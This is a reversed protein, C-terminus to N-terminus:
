KNKNLMGLSVLLIVVVMIQIEIGGFPLSAFTFSIGALSLLLPVLGTVCLPCVGAAFGGAAGIGAATYGETCKKREKYRVYGLIANMSVLMGIVLSLFISISLKIWNVTSAYRLILIATTYFGSILINLSIYLLFIGIAWYIYPKKFIFKLSMKNM